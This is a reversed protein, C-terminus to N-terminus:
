SRRRRLRRRRVGRRRPGTYRHVKKSEEKTLGVYDLETLGKLLGKAIRHWGDIPIRGMSGYAVLLPDDTNVVDSEVKKWDVRIGFFHAQGPSSILDRFPELALKRIPRPREQILRKAHDVRWRDYLYIFEEKKLNWTITSSSPLRAGM